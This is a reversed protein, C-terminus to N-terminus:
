LASTEELERGSTEPLRTLVLALSLIPLVAAWSLSPGYGWREAGAGVLWPGIVYGIKGLVNNVWGFADARLETPFLELTFSNLAPLVASAAFIAGTLGLTVAAFGRGNYAILTSATATLLVLTAGGRRGIRDLVRGFLFVLPLSGLAAIMLSLSVQADSFAREQVAYEKLYTVSLYTCTCALAWIASLLFVRGRYATRFVAFLDISPAKQELALFRATERVNRRLWIVTLLPVAGVMYVSRFGLPTKLLVPVLGACTIAGLSSLGQLVGVAFGRRDAPFEEAIYVMSVAYEALLFSRAALQAAGFQYADQALACLLSTLTYGAITVGLVRRRGSRDASRILAYAPLASLGIAAVLRGAASESLGYAARLSPLLQSLAVYEYGEFFTAVGLLLFLKRQYSTLPTPLADATIM